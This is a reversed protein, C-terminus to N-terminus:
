PTTKVKIAHMCLLVPTHARLVEVDFQDTIQVEVNVDILRIRGRSDRAFPPIDYCKWHDAVVPPDATEDVPLQDLEGTLLEGIVPTCILRGRGVDVNERTGFQDNLTVLRKQDAGNISYCQLGEFGTGGGGAGGGANTDTSSLAILGAVTLALFGLKARRM